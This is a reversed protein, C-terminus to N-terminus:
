MFLNSKLLDVVGNIGSQKLTVVVLVGNNPVNILDMGMIIIVMLVTLITSLLYVQAGNIIGVSISWFLYMLDMSSKVANRFRVISLAGVMGLSVVINAQMSLVIAATIVPLAVLTNNFDKNYFANKNKYRYIFYIFLGMLLSVGLVVLIMYISIDPNFGKLFEETFIDTFSM